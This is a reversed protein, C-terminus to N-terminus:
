LGPQRREGDRRVEEGNDGGVGGGGGNVGVDEELRPGM